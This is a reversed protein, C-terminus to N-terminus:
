REEGRDVGPGRGGAVAAPARARGQDGEGAQRHRAVAAGDHRVAGHRGHGLLGKTRDPTPHGLSQRTLERHRM